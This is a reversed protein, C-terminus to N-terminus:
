IPEAGGLSFVTELFKASFGNALLVLNPALTERLNFRM